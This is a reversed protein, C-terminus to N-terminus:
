PVPFAAVAEASVTTRTHVPDPQALQTEIEALLRTLSVPKSLYANVGAQLSRERDGPMALATIAVIPIQSLTADARIRQTAELGDMGPMQLDMLILAPKRKRAKALAQVGDGAIEVQYNKFTLYDVITRVTVANDEALLILPGDARAAPQEPPAVLTPPLVPPLQLSAVPQLDSVGDSLLRDPCPLLVSFRSGQGVESEVVVSGGHLEVMRYVLALGLGTGEHQRGLRSDLQVFPKFLRAMSAEAIGLGTDWVTFEVVAKGARVDLGVSGGASTFKVANSLLNLLIQKLRREDAEILTVQPDLTFAVQLQKKSVVPQILHLSAQCLVGVDVLTRTLDLQGAEIKALDLIDNILALLHEGSAQVTTVAKAQKANLAGYIAEQLAESTGLIGNLPTRLEHSMSALFEDKLRVAKALQAILHEQEQESQKRRTVDEVTGQYFLPQGESNRVLLASESIWIRGRTKHRYIESEFNLVSGQEELIRQFENRRNPDVYWESAIDNVAALMEAEGSYGNLNVLAPNARLQRGELSSRYIGIPVSNFLARYQEEAESLAKEAQKREALEREIAENAARLNATREEVRQSLLAREAQLTREMQKRETIDLVVSITGRFLGTADFNPMASVLITIKCGDKRQTELEYSSRENRMRKSTQLQLVSQNTQDYVLVDENCRQLVEDRPYGFIECWKDNVYQFVEHEDVIVFGENMTQLLQQFQWERAQLDQQLGASKQLSSRLSRTVDIGILTFFTFALPPLLYLALLATQAYPLHLGAIRQRLLLSLWFLAIGAACWLLARQPSGTLAAYFLIVTFGVVSIILLEPATTLCFITTVLLFGLNGLWEARLPHRNQHLWRWAVGTCLAGLLFATGQWVFAVQPQRSYQVLNFLGFAPFVFTAGMFLAYYLRHQYSLLPTPLM